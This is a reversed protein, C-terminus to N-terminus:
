DWNDNRTYRSGQFRAQRVSPRLWRPIDAEDARPRPDDDADRLLDPDVPPILERMPPLPTVAPVPGEASVATPAAAAATATITTPAEEPHRRRRALVFFLGGSVTGLLVWPLLWDPAPGGPGGSGGASDPDRPGGGPVVVPAGDTASPEPSASPGSPGSAGSPEASPSASPAESGPETASPAPTAPVPTSAPAPPPTAAPPKPTPVPTPPPPPPPTPAPPKPTPAPTPPPPPATITLSTPSVSTLQVTIEGAGEGSTASFYYTRFGIPLPMTRAYTIGGSPDPGVEALPFTGVGSITVTISIPPCDNNDTYVASFRIPTASSGASPSALGRTLTMDHSAGKCSAAHVPTATPLLVVCTAVLFLTRIIRM